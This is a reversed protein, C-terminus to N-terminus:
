VVSKRDPISGPNESKAITNTKLTRFPISILYKSSMVKNNFSEDRRISNNSLLYTWDCNSILSDLQEANYGMSYIGGVLAGMSTGVIIDIPVGAEEM